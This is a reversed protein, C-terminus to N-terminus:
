LRTYAWWRVERMGAPWSWLAVSGLQCPSVAGAGEQPQRPVWTQARHRGALMRAGM